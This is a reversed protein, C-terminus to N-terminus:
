KKESGYTEKILYSLMNKVIGKLIWWGKQWKNAPNIKWFQFASRKSLPFNKKQSFFFNRKVLVSKAVQHKRRDPLQRQRQLCKWYSTIDLFQIWKRLQFIAVDNNWVAPVENCTLTHSIPNHPSHWSKVFIRSNLLFFAPMDPAFGLHPEPVLKSGIKQLEPSIRPGIVIM